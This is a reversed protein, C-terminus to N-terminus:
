KMRILREELEALDIFAMDNVEAQITYVLRDDVISSISNLVCLGNESLVQLVSSFRPQGGCCRSSFMIEVGMLCQRVVVHNKRSMMKMDEKSDDGSSSGLLSGRSVLMLEDRRSSLEENKKQLYKIYNVAENVQDSTSRKGQIFHLPLLSRLSAYLSAMEQRRQRETERHMTKEIDNNNDTTSCTLKTCRRRRKERCDDM